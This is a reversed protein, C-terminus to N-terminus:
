TTSHRALLGLARLESGWYLCFFFNYINKKHEYQLSNMRGGNWGVGSEKNSDRFIEWNM